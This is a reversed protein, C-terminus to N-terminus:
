PYVPICFLREEEGGRLQLLSTWVRLLLARGSLVALSPKIGLLPFWLESFGDSGRCARAPISFKSWEEEELFATVM